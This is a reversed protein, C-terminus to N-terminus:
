QNLANFVDSRIRAMIPDWVSDKSVDHSAGGRLLDIEELILEIGHSACMRHLHSGFDSHREAGAFLYLVVLFLRVMLRPVNVQTSSPPTSKDEDSNVLPSKDSTGPAM